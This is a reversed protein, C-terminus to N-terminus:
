GLVMGLDRAQGKDMLQVGVSKFLFGPVSRNIGLILFAAM